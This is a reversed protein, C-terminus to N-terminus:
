IHFHAVEDRLHQALGELRQATNATDRVAASNQEAMQAIHEVSRAIENSAAGQERLAASIDAVADVVQTAGARIQEMSAGAQGALEVGGEVRTVGENMTEVALRTGKQIAAVMGTIEDTAKATREALKRVEDAVVAFGRGTEGARAAEIAANLALLNTQDAIEKISSVITSIQASQQGLDQIVAASERVSSAILEMEGVTKAVVAGGESSIRGSASSIGEASAASSAIESIGVTMEEIAAAMGTASTSQQESGDSVRSASGALEVAARAVDNAGSQVKGIVASFAAAMENFQGAVLRLEDDATLAIRARLDGAALAQAGARLESVSQMMAFCFATALYVLVLVAVGAFAAHLAFTQRRGDLRSKLLTQVAPILEDYSKAFSMDIAVTVTDFYAQPAMEFDGKLIKERLHEVVKNTQANFEKELRELSSKLGPNAVAARHLNENVAHLALQLEGLQVSIDYRQQDGLAKSSLVGTGLARLRGLREGVDPLSHLVGGILYFSDASPDLSLGGDDGLDHLAEMAKAVLRTHAVVSERQTLQLGGTRLVEWDQAVQKWRQSASQAVGGSLGAEGQKMAEVVEETKKQLLPRMAENGSLVGSSLGRHEQLLQIVKLVRPLRESAELEKEAYVISERLSMALQFLLAGVVLLAILGLLAFKVPFRLRNLLLIAPAFLAKM